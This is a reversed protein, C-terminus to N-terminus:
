GYILNREGTLVRDMFIGELNGQESPKMLYYTPTDFINPNIRKPRDETGIYEEFAKQVKKLSWFEQSIVTDIFDYDEQKCAEKYLRSLTRLQM